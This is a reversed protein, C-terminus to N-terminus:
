NYPQDAIVVVNAAHVDRHCIGHQHMQYIRDYIMRGMLAIQEESRCAEIWTELPEGLRTVIAAPTVDFVVPAM